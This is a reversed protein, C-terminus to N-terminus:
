QSTLRYKHALRWVIQSPQVPFLHLLRCTDILGRWLIGRSRITQTKRSRGFNGGDIIDDLILKGIIKSHPVIAWNENMGFLFEEVWMIGKAFNLMGLYNFIQTYNDQQGEEYLSKLVYYYDMLHRVGIGEALMHGLMHSMQYVVNFQTTPVAVKEEGLPTLNVMNSFQVESVRNLWSHIRKDYKPVISHRPYYHLEVVVDEYYPFVIHMDGDVSNSCKSFAFSKISDRDGEVWVDIDGPNRSLPDVYMRANGQGKLICSRFGARSLLECIEFCRKNLLQNKSKIQESLGWWKFLLEKPPKIGSSFLKELSTFTVGAITQEQSYTFITEWEKSSPTISICDRQGISLQILEYFLLQSQSKKHFM